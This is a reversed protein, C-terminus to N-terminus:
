VRVGEGVEHALRHDTLLSALFNLAEIRIATRTETRYFREMFETVQGVWGPVLSDLM